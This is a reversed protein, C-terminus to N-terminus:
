DVVIKAHALPTAVTSIELRKLVHWICVVNFRRRRILTPTRKLRLDDVHESSFSVSLYGRATSVDDLFRRSLRRINRKQRVNRFIDFNGSDRSIDRALLRMMSLGRLRVDNRSDVDLRRFELNM